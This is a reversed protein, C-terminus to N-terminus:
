LLRITAGEHAKLFAVTEHKGPEEWFPAFFAAIVERYEGENTITDAGSSSVLAGLFTVSVNKGPGANITLIEGSKAVIAVGSYPATSYEADVRVGLGWLKGM